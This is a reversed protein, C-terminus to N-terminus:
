GVIPLPVQYEHGELFLTGRHVTEDWFGQTNGMCLGACRECRSRIQHILSNIEQVCWTRNQSYDRVGAGVSGHRAFEEADKLAWGLHEGFKAVRGTVSCGTTRQQVPLLQKGHTVEVLNATGPLCPGM